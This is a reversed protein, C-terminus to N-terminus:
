WRTAMMPSSTPPPTPRAGCSRCTPAPAPMTGLGKAQGFYHATADTANGIFGIADGERKAAASGVAAAYAMMEAM